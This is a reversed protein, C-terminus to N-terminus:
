CLIKEVKKRAPLIIHNGDIRVVGVLPLVTKVYREICVGLFVFQLVLYFVLSLSSLFSTPHLPLLLLLLLLLLM